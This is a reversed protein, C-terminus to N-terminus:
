TAFKADVPALLPNDAAILALKEARSLQKIAAERKSASSRDHNNELFGIRDPKDSRFFKAGKGELHSQWRRDMDNTIGTYLRQGTTLVIYVWWSHESASM